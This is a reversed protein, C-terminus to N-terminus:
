NYQRQLFVMEGQKSYLTIKLDSGGSFLVPISTNPLFSFALATSHHPHISITQLCAITDIGCEWIKITNASDSSALYLLLENKDRNGDNSVAIGAVASIAAM